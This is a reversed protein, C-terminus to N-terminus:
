INTCLSTQIVRLFSNGYRRAKIKGVGSVELLAEISVPRKRAMDALTANSFIIYAPVGEKQALQMRHAKLSTLLLDDPEAAAPKAASVHKVPLLIDVKEGGFLVQRAKATVLLVSFEAPTVALYNLDILRDIYQSLLDQSLNKLIGYTPLDDLRLDLIRKGKSGRLMQLISSRGLGSPYLRCVRAVGSLIKQAEVTIDVAQYTGMCTSCNKCPPIDQGFYSVITQRLCDTTKCYREMKELRALDREQLLARDQFNLEQNDSSNLILFKATQVDKPSFLLICSAPEGDRGARGAEQYYNELNKPMNYHLVFSVNSKDIGMGFANTAVMVRARDYVFDEQNSKREGDSLGAHYRTASHGCSQLKACLAEVNKRTACYVIGSKGRNKELYDLVWTDKQRTHVVGFYLNPRDFGTTLTLPQQLQLLSVIDSKVQETATATFAGLVPRRPLLRLFEPIKLYSPRFDQGWQSVCHAEDVAIFSITTQELLSLFGPTFLREPAVYLLKYAGQKGKQLIERYDELDLSSNLYAAPIGSQNLSAVQDAMLSILPSIVLTMGPLAMAPIQYCISKGASTPMVGLVDRGALISQILPEQGPRFEKHGFYHQLLERPEM